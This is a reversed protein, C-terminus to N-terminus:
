YYTAHISAYALLHAYKAIFLEVPYVSLFINSANAM